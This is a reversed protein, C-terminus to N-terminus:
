LVGRTCLCASSSCCRSSPEPVEEVDESSEKLVNAVYGDFVLDHPRLVLTCVACAWRAAASETRSQVSGVGKSADLRKAVVLSHSPCCIHPHYRKCGLVVAYTQFAIARFHFVWCTATSSGILHRM